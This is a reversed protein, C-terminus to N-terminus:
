VRVTDALTEGKAASTLSPDNASLVNGGLRIMASEFSLRTRTSPEHFLTSLISGKALDLRGTISHHPRDPNGLHALFEDAIDFIAEIERNSLDDITIIDKNM